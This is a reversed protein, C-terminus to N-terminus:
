SSSNQYEHKEGSKRQEASTAYNKTLMQMLSSQDAREYNQVDEDTIMYNTEKVRVIDGSNATSPKETEEYIPTYMNYTRKKVDFQTSPHQSYSNM